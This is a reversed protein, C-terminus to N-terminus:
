LLSRAWHIVIEREEADESFMDEYYLTRLDQYPVEYFAALKKLVDKRPLYQGQEYRSLNGRSVGTQKEVENLAREGRLTRLAEALKRNVDIM